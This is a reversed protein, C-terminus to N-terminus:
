CFQRPSHTGELAIGQQQADSPSRVSDTVLLFRLILM